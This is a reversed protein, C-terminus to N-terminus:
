GRRRVGLVLMWLAVAFVTQWVLGQPVSTKPTLVFLWGTYGAHMLVGVLVSGTHGYVWTMLLRYAPLTALWYVAFWLPWLSGMGVLNGSLDALLHWGAWM